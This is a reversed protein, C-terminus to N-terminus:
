AFLIAFHLFSILIQLILLEFIFLLINLVVTFSFPIGHRRRLLMQICKVECGCVERLVMIIRLFYLSRLANQVVQVSHHIVVTFVGFVLIWLKAFRLKIHNLLEYTLFCPTLFKLIYYPSCIFTYLPLRSRKLTLMFDSGRVRADHRFPMSRADHTHKLWDSLPSHTVLEFVYM